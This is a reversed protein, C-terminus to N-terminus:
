GLEPVARRVATLLAQTSPRARDTARTAAFIARSV